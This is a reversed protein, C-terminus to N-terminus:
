GRWEKPLPKDLYDNINYPAEKRMRIKRSLHLDVLGVSVGFFAILLHAFRWSSTSWIFSLIQVASCFLLATGFM